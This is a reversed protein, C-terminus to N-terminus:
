GQAGGGDPSESQNLNQHHDGDDGNRGRKQQRRDALGFVGGFANVAGVIELLNAQGEKKVNAIGFISQRQISLFLRPVVASKSIRFPFDCAVLM